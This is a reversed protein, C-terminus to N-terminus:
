TGFIHSLNQVNDFSAFDAAEEDARTLTFDGADGPARVFLGQEDANLMRALIAAVAM